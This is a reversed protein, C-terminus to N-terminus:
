CAEVKVRSRADRGGGGRTRSPGRFVVRALRRASATPRRPSSLQPRRATSSRSSRVVRRRPVHRGRWRGRSELPVRWKEVIRLYDGVHAHVAPECAATVAAERAEVEDAEFAGSEISVDTKPLDPHAACWGGRFTLAAHRAIAGFRLRDHHLRLRRTCGCATQCLSPAPALGWSSAAEDGAARQSCCNEAQVAKTATWM